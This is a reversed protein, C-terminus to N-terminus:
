KAKQISTSSRRVRIEIRRREKAELFDDGLSLSEDVGIVQAGSLPIITIKKLLSSRMLFHSVVAARAFGLGANDSATLAAVEVQGKLVPILMKDLNSQIGSIPSKDTHGIVEIVDAKYTQLTEMLKPIVKNSLQNKFDVTLEAKGLEFFFGDAESLTIIPPWNHDGAGNKEPFRLDLLKLLEDQSNIDYGKKEFIKGVSRVVQRSDQISGTVISDSAPLLYEQIIKRIQSNSAASYGKESILMKINNNLKVDSYKPLNEKITEEVISLSNVEYGKRILERKIGEALELHEWFEDIRLKDSNTSNRIQQILTERKLTQEQLDVFKQKENRLLLAATILMSFVILLMIEAMTLGLVLGNRYASNQLAITQRM